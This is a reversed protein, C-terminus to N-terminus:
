TPQSMQKDVEDTLVQIFRCAENPVDFEMYKSRKGNKKETCENVTWNDIKPLSINMKTELSHLFDIMNDSQEHHLHIHQGVVQIIRDIPIKPCNVSAEIM